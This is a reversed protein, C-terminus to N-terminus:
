VAHAGFDENDNNASENADIRRCYHTCAECKGEYIRTGSPSRYSEQNYCYDRSDPL